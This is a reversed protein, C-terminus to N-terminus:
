ISAARKRAQRRLQGERNHRRAEESQTRPHSAQFGGKARIPVRCAHLLKRLDGLRYDRLIQLRPAGARWQKVIAKIKDRIEQPDGTESFAASIFTAQGIKFRKASLPIIKIM